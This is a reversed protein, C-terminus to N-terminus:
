VANPRPDHVRDLVMVVDDDLGQDHDEGRDEQGHVQDNVNAVGVEVRPDPVRSMVVGLVVTTTRAAGRALRPSHRSASRRSSRLPGAMRPMIKTAMKMRPARRAGTSAGNSGVM